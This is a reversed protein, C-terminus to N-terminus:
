QLRQNKRPFYYDAFRPAVEGSSLTASHTQKYLKLAEDTNVFNERAVAKYRDNSAIFDQLKQINAYDAQYKDLARNHREKKKWRRLLTTM